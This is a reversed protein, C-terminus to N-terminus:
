FYVVGTAVDTCNELIVTSEEKKMKKKVPKRSFGDSIWSIKLLESFHFCIKEHLKKSFRLVDLLNEASKVVIWGCKSCYVVWDDNFRQGAQIVTKKKWGVNEFQFLSDHRKGKALLDQKWEYVNMDYKATSKPYHHISQKVVGGLKRLNQKNVQKQQFKGSKKYM